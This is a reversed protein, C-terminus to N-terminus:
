RCKTSKLTFTYSLLISLIAHEDYSKPPEHCVTSPLFGAGISISLINEYLKMFLLHHLIEEM